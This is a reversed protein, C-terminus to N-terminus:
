AIFQVGITRRVGVGAAALAARQENFVEARYKQRLNFLDAIPIRSIQQGAITTEELGRPIRNELAAQILDLTKQAHSPEAEGAPNPLVQWAGRAITHREGSRRVFATWTYSGPLWGATTTSSVVATYNAGGSATTGVTASTPGAVGYSLAWGDAAPYEAVSRSWSVTDGATITTPESCM